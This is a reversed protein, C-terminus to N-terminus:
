KNEYKNKKWEEFKENTLSEIKNYLKNYIDRNKIMNEEILKDIACHIWLLYNDVGDNWGDDYENMIANIM